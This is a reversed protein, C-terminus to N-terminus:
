GWVSMERRYAMEWFLGEFEVSDVFAREVRRKQAETKGAVLADIAEFFWAYSGAFDVGAYTEIWSRYPNEELERAYAAKLRTAYDCYTWACPLVAALIEALDGTQGVALMNATYTRNCLSAPAKAVQEPGIGYAAMYARHLEMEGTLIGHQVGTLRALMAEDEAKVAALAFVKAYQLLYHYDQILYFQFAGPDLTGRGLGQVFPHNYGEEWTRAAKEKLNRTFSM